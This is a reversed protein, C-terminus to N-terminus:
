KSMTDSTFTAMIKGQLAVKRGDVFLGCPGNAANRALEGRSPVVSGMEGVFLVTQEVITCCEEQLENKGHAL